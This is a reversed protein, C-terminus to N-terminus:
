VAIVTNGKRTLNFTHLALAEADHNRFSIVVINAQKEIKTFVKNLSKTAPHLRTNKSISIYELQMIRALSRAAQSKAFQLRKITSQLRVVNPPNLYRMSNSFTIIEKSVHLSQLVLEHPQLVPTTVKVGEHDYAALAAPINEKALSIATSIINYALKDAEENNGVSLNILIVAPRGHFEVFEKTILENYQLSHKWDINKLSDGPQYLQNGYYEVGRRLGYIPKLEQVNSILPLAGAKTEALYRKALWAAYRARPIVHLRIPELEFSIQFLGWRDTAHGELKIIAPGSLLPSLSVKVVIENERRSLINPSVKLWAYPSEVFLLGGIKTKSNLKIYLHEESGALMRQQVPEEEVPKMPLRMLIIASLIGFCGIIVICALLLSLSALIVSIVLMVIAISLIALYTNTPRRVCRTAQYDSSGAVEELGHNIILLVPLSILLSFLPATHTAFLLAIAFFMFYETLLNPVARASWRWLALYFVLLVLPIFSLTLPSLAAAIVLAIVV